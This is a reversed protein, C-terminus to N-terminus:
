CFCRKDRRSFLQTYQELGDIIGDNDTDPNNPDTGLRFESGDSLGDGDTDYKLPSSTYEKVEFRDDLGDKDTDPIM